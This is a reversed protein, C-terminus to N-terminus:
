TLDDTLSKFLVAIATRFRQHRECNSQRTFGIGRAEWEFILPLQNQIYHNRM